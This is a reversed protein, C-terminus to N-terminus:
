GPGEEAGRNLQGDDNGEEDVEMAKFVEQLAINIANQLALRWRPKKPIKDLPLPSRPEDVLKPNQRFWDLVLSYLIDMPKKKSLADRIQRISKNTSRLTSWDVRVGLVHEAYMLSAVCYPITNKPWREKNSFEKLITLFRWKVELDEIHSYKADTAKCHATHFSERWLRDFHAFNVYDMATEALWPQSVNEWGAYARLALNLNYVDLELDAEKHAKKEPAGALEDNALREERSRTVTSRTNGSGSTM